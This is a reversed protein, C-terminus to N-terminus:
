NLIYFFHSIYLRDKKIGDETNDFTVKRAALKCYEMGDNLERPVGQFYEAPGYGSFAKFDAWCRDCTQHIIPRNAPLAVWFFRVFGEIKESLPYTYYNM